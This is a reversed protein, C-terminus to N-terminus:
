WWMYIIDVVDKKTIVISNIGFECFSHTNYFSGLKKTLKKKIYIYIYIYIYFKSDFKGTAVTVTSLDNEVIFITFLRNRLRILSWYISSLKITYIPFSMERLILIFNYHLPKLIHFVRQFWNYFTIIFKKNTVKQNYLYDTKSM